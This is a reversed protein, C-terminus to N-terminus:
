APPAEPLTRRFQQLKARRNKYGGFHFWLTDSGLDGMTTGDVELDGLLGPFLRELVASGHPLLGHVHRGQPVSKRAETGGACLDRELVIVEDRHSSLVRAALLGAVSGGCVIV